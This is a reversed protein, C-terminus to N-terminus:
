KLVHAIQITSPLSIFYGTFLLVRLVDSTLPQIARSLTVDCKEVTNSGIAEALKRDLREIIRPQVYNKQSVTARALFNETVASTEM